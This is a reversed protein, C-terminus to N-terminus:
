EGKRIKERGVWRNRRISTFRNANLHSHNNEKQNWSAALQTNETVCRSLLVVVFSLCVLMKSISLLMLRLIKEGAPCCCIYSHKVWSTVQAMAQMSLFFDSWFNNLMSKPLFSDSNWGSFASLSIKTWSLKVASHWVPTLGVVILLVWKEDPMESTSLHKTAVAFLSPLFSASWEFIRATQKLLFCATDVM